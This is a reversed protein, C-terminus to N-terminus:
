LYNDNQGSTAWLTVVMMTHYIADIWCLLAHCPQTRQHAKGTRQMISAADHLMRGMEVRLCQLSEQGLRPPFRQPPQSMSSSTAHWPVLWALRRRSVGSGLCWLPSPVCECKVDTWVQLGNMNYVWKECRNVTWQYAQVATSSNPNSAMVDPAAWSLFCLWDAIRRSLRSVIGFTECLDDCSGLETCFYAVTSVVDLIIPSRTLIRWWRHFSVLLSIYHYLQEHFFEGAFLFLWFCDIERSWSFYWAGFLWPDNM